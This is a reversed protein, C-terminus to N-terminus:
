QNMERQLRTLEDFDIEEKSIGNDVWENRIQEAADLDFNGEETPADRFREEPDRNMDDYLDRM